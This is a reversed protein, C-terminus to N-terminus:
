FQLNVGLSWVKNIPPVVGTTEPDWGPYFQHFSHLNEGNLYMRFSQIFANELIRGPLNYGLQLSNIRLFSASRMWYEMPTNWPARHFGMEFRPYIADRDPNDQTWRGDVQWQQMNGYNFVALQGSGLIQQHGALGQLQAYFDFSKYNASLGLGYAFKPFETGIVNRDDGSTVRGDGDIDVMRPYGPKAPYNQIAYSDIDAQDIFLGDTKYGYISNLPEGIFLGRAIDREVGALYAVQNYNVSFNPQVRFSFDGITRNYILGFEFGRNEVIGANQAGVGMGMVAAVTLNYLIDETKKFYYDTVFSLAGDFLTLDFGVNTIKTTEWTIGLFPTSNLMVGPNIRNGFFYTSGLGLVRQYPYDGIQQNGLIGYSGRLTLNNIWSLQFFDEESIRWGASFSPFLGYRKDHDFRSSGDLRVNGELLYKNQFAYNIRGFYSIYNVTSATNANTSNAPSAASLHHLQNSPFNDRYATLSEYNNSEASFGGLININHNEGLNPNFNVISEYLLRDSNSGTVTANSPGITLTPNIWHTAGFLRDDSFSAAYSARNTWKLNNFLDWALSLNPLVHTTKSSRFSGSALRSNLNPHGMSLEYTGDSKQGVITANDHFARGIIGGRMDSVVGMSSMGAPQDRLAQFGTVRADLLINHRIRTNLSLLLDYRNYHNQEVVGNQMLYGGSVYYKTQETGGQFSLNHKTQLGNGSNFLDEYFKNNPYNDPDTGGRYQDIDAQTYLPSLGENIRMENFMEAYVWSDVFKPLDVPRQRGIYSDYNIHMTGEQGTRTTVLIVGNAARSGYISAAAADKLVTVSEITNPNVNNISGPVGDILVMPANGAGSFTGLGRIHLSAADAGPEGSAQRVTVGTASGILLQSAQTVNKRQLESRDITTVSGTLNARRQTGYGVVVIEDLDIAVSFLTVDIVSRGEILVERSSYGVFSFVLFVYPDPVALSYNGDRDTVTGTTTGQVLVSVGPLSEGTAADTVKGTVRLEQKEKLFDGAYKNVSTAQILFIPSFILVLFLGLFRIKNNKGIWPLLPNISKKKM